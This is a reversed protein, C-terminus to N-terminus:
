AAVAEQAPNGAGGELPDACQLLETAYRGLANHCHMVVTARGVGWPLTATCRLLEPTRQGWAALSHM